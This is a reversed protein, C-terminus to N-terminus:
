SSTSIIFEVPQVAIGEPMNSIDFIECVFDMMVVKLQNYRKPFTTAQRVLETTLQFDTADYLSKSNIHEYIKQVFEMCRVPTDQLDYVVCHLRITATGHQFKDGNQIWSIPDIFEVYVVPYRTAKEEETNNYQNNYWDIKKIEQLEKLRSKLVTYIENLVIM